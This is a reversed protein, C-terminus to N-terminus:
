YESATKNTRTCLCLFLIVCVYIDICLLLRFLPFIGPIKSIQKRRLIDILSVRIHLASIEFIDNGIIITFLIYDNCLFRHDFVVQSANGSFGVNYKFSMSTQGADSFIDRTRLEM